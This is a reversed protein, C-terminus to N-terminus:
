SFSSISISCFCKHFSSDSYSLPGSNLVSNCVDTRLIAVGKSYLHSVLLGKGLRIPTEHNHMTMAKRCGYEVEKGKKFKSGELLNIIKNKKRFISM